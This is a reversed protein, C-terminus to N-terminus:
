IPNFESADFNLIWELFHFAYGKYILHKGSSLKNKIDINKCDVVLFKRVLSLYKGTWPIIYELMTGFREDAIDDRGGWMVLLGFKKYKDYIPAILETDIDIALKLIIQM